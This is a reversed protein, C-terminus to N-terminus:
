LAQVTLTLPPLTRVSPVGSPPTVLVFRQVQYRGPPANSPITIQGDALTCGQEDPLLAAENYVLVAGGSMNLLRAQAVLRMHPSTCFSSHWLAIEGPAFGTGPAAEHVMAGPRARFPGDTRLATVVCTASVYQQVTLGLGVVGLGLMAALGLRRQHADAWGLHHQPAHLVPPKM